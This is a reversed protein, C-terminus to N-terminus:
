SVNAGFPLLALASLKFCQKGFPIGIITICLIIGTFTWTIFSILGVLLFWIINGLLKM